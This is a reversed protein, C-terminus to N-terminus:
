DTILKFILNWLSGIIRQLTISWISIINFLHSKRVISFFIFFVGLICRFFDILHPCDQCFCMNRYIGLTDHANLSIWPSTPHMVSFILASDFNQINRSNSLFNGFSAYQVMYIIWRQLSQLHLNYQFDPNLFDRNAFKEAVHAQIKM